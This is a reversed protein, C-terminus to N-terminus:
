DGIHERLEVLAIVDYALELTRVRLDDLVVHLAERLHTHTHLHAHLHTHTHTQAHLHAHTSQM